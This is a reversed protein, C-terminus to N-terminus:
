TAPLGASRRPHPGCSYLVGSLVIRRPSSMHKGIYTVAAVNAALPCPSVATLIGLWFASAAGLWYSEIM